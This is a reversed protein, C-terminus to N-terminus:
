FEEVAEIQGDTTVYINYNRQWREPQPLDLNYVSVQVECCEPHNARQRRDRDTMMALRAPKVPLRTSHVRHTLGDDSPLVSGAPGELNLTATAIHIATDAAAASLSINTM